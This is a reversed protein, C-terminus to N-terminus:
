ESSGIIWVGIKKLEIENKGNNWIYLKLTIKGEAKFGLPYAFYLKRFNGVVENGLYQNLAFSKYYIQGSEDNMTAVLDTNDHRFANLRCDACFILSLNKSHYQSIDTEFVDGYENEESILLSSDCNIEGSLFEVCSDLDILCSSKCFLVEDKIQLFEAMSKERYLKKFVSIKGNTGIPELEDVIGPYYNVVEALIFENQMAVYDFSKSLFERINEENTGILAYGKRDMLIMPINASYADIVLMTADKRVGLSDLYKKSGNFSNVECFSRNNTDDAYRAAMDDRCKGYGFYGFLIIFIGTFVRSTASKLDLSDLFLIFVLILPIYFSDLFYYDHSHFQRIMVMFYITCVVVTILIQISLNKQFATLKQKRIRQILFAFGFLLLTIYHYITFYSTFWSQYVFILNEKLEAISSVTLLKTLFVSGYTMALWRNYLFYGLLVAFAIVFVAVVKGNWKKQKIMALIEQLFMAGLFLSTPTRSLGALLAFAVAIMLNGYNRSRLYAFYFYYAIFVNAVSTLSPLFGDMYYILVPSFFAFVLVSLSKVTSQSNKLVLLFLFLFGLAGWLLSYFRFVFPGNHGTLQMIIGVMYDHIPLDVQTIGEEVKLPIKSPFQPSLNYTQPHFLDFGNKQFNLALAYRDAQAWAHVHSPFSKINDKYFRLCFFSMLGIFLLLTVAKKIKASHFLQNKIELGKM